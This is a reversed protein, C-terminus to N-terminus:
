ALASDFCSISFWKNPFFFDWAPPKVTPPSTTKSRADNILVGYDLSRFRIDIM